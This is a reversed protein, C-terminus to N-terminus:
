CRQISPVSSEGGKSDPLEAPSRPKSRQGVPSEFELFAPGGDNDEQGRRGLASHLQDRKRLPKAM